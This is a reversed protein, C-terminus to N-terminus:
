IINDVYNLLYKKVVNKSLYNEICFKESLCKKYDFNEESSYVEFIKNVFEEVIKERTQQLSIVFNIDLIESVGEVKTSIIPKKLVISELIVNPSGEWYSTLLFLDCANIYDYVNEKYGLFKIYEKVNLKKAYNLLNSYEKGDGIIVFVYKRECSLSKVKENFNKVIEILLDFGKQKHLRGVSLVFFDKKSIGLEDRIESDSFKINIENPEVINPVIVVKDNHIKQTNLVFEKLETSNVFIKDVLFKTFRLLKLQWLKQKEAVRESCFVKTKPLFIKVFRALFNAQFLFSHVIKIQHKVCLFIFKTFSYILFFLSLFSFNEPLGLDYVKIGLSIIKDRYRGGKKLSIVIIDWKYNKLEKVIYYLNKQTGGYDLSTVFYVIKNRQNLENLM